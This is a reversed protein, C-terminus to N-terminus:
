AALYKGPVVDQFIWQNNKRFAKIEQGTVTNQLENVEKSALSIKCEKYRGLYSIKLKNENWSLKTKDRNEIYRAIEDCKGYWIDAGRLISYIRKLSNMSDYVNPRQRIGDTRLTSFHKQISIIFQNEYLYQLYEHLKYNRYYGYVIRCKIFRKTKPYLQHKFSEGSFNTPFNFVKQKDGFYSERNDSHRKNMMKHSCAWWKFGLEEIIKKSNENSKYGPFKGGNFKINAIEEFKSISKRLYPIDKLTRYEFEQVFGGEKKKGHSTGHFAYDFHSKMYKLFALYKEDFGKSLIQYGGTGHKHNHHEDILIFFTGKVEPYSELLNNRFYNFLGDKNAKGYGHDNAPTIIGDTTIAVPALDDVMLTVSAKCDNYYKCIHM